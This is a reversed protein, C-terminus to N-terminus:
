DTLVNILTAGIIWIGFMLVIATPVSYFGGVFGALGAVVGIGGSLGHLARRKNRLDM